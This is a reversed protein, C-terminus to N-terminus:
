SNADNSPTPASLCTRSWTAHDAYCRRTHLLASQAQNSTRLHMFSAIKACVRNAAVSADNQCMLVNFRARFQWDKATCFRNWLM